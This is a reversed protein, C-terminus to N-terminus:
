LGLPDLLLFFQIQHHLDLSELDELLFLLALHPLLSGPLLPRLNDNVLYLLAGDLSHLLLLQTVLFLYLQLGVDLFHALFVFDGVLGLSSLDVQEHLLGRLCIGLCKDLFISSDLFFLVLVLCDGLVLALLVLQFEFLLLLSLSKPLLLLALDLPEALQLLLRRVSLGLDVGQPGLPGELLALSAGSLSFLELLRLSLANLGIELLGSLLLELLLRRGQSLLSSHLPLVVHVLDLFLLLYFKM